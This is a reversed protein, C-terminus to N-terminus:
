FIVIISFHLIFIPHKKYTKYLFMVGILNISILWQIIEFWGTGYVYLWADSDSSFGLTAYKQAIMYLLSLVMTTKLSFFLETLRNVM